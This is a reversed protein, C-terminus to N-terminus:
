HDREIIYLALAALTSSDGPLIKLAAQAEAVLERAKEKAGPLGLLAPYTPKNLAQDAGQTKGLTATDSEIDLIDDQVQFALGIAEAYTTLAGAIEEPLNEVVSYAGMEVAACILAGTKHRHMNELEALTLQKGVNGLDICQGAVMGAGGSASALVRILQLRQVSSLEADFLAPQTLVEFAATLLGDGALIATPEDFAIHCTPKGRRLDDDDMAPLDDHVLSYSHIMEVATAAADAQAWSGGMAEATAYALFPRLRKGGNLLGYNMAKALSEDAINLQKLVQLLADEVRQQASNLQAQM